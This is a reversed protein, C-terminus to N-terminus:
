FADSRSHFAPNVMSNSAFMDVFGGSSGSHIGVILIGGFFNYGMYWSSSCTAFYMSM